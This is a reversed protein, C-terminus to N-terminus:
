RIFTMLAIFILLIFAAMFGNRAARKYEDRIAPDLHEKRVTTFAQPVPNPQTHAPQPNYSANSGAQRVGTISAGTGTAQAAANDIDKVEHRLEFLGEIAVDEEAAKEVQQLVTEPRMMEYNAHALAEPQMPANLPRKQQRKALIEKVSEPPREPTKVEKTRVQEAKKVKKLKEPKAKEQVREPVKPTSEVVNVPAVPQKEVSKQAAGQQELEKQQTKQSRELKQTREKLKKEEHKRQRNHRRERKEAQRLHTQTAVDRPVFRQEPDSTSAESAGGVGPTVLVNREIQDHDRLSVEVEDQETSTEEIPTEAEAGIEETRAAQEYEAAVIPDLPSEQATVTESEEEGVPPVETEQAVPQAAEVQESGAVAPVPAFREASTDQPESVAENPEIDPITEKEVQNGFFAKFLSRFKGTKEKTESTESDETDSESTDESYFSQNESLSRRQVWAQLTQNIATSVKRRKSSTGETIPTEEEAGAPPQPSSEM